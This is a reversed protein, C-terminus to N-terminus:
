TKGDPSMLTFKNNSSHSYMTSKITLNKSTPINVVRVKNDNGIKHLSDNEVTQEFIDEKGV